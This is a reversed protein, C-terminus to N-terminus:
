FGSITNAFADSFCFNRRIPVAALSDFGLGLGFGLSCLVPAPLEGGFVM